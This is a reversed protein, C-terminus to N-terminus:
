ADPLKFQIKLLANSIYNKPIIVRQKGAATITWMGARKDNVYVTVTQRKIKNKVLFPEQIVTL